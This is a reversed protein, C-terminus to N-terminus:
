LKKDDLYDGIREKIYVTKQSKIESTKSLVETAYRVLKPSAKKSSAGTRGGNYAMLAKKLDGDAWKLDNELHDVGIEINKEITFLEESPIDSYVSSNLQFLGGDISKVKGTRQDINKHSAKPDFKSEVWIQAVLVDIDVPSKQAYLANVIEKNKTLDVYFQKTTEKVLFEKTRQKAIDAQNVLFNGTIVGVTIFAAPLLWALIAKRM